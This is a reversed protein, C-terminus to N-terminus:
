SAPLPWRPTAVGGGSSGMMRFVIRRLLTAAQASKLHGTRQLGSSERPARMSHPDGHQMTRGRDPCCHGREAEAQEGDQAEDRGGVPRLRGGLRRGHRRWRVPQAPPDDGGVDHRQLLGIHQVAEAGEHGRAQEVRQAVVHHRPLAAAREAGARHHQPGVLPRTREDQAGILAIAQLHAELVQQRRAPLLLAAQRALIAAPQRRMGGGIGPRWRALAQGIRPRHAEIGRAGACSGEVDGPEIHQRDRRRLARHVRDAAARPHIGAQGSALTDGEVGARRLRHPGAEVEAAQRLGPLAGDRAPAGRLLAGVEGIGGGGRHAPLAIAALNAEAEEGRHIDLRGAGGPVAGLDGLRLQAGRRPRDGVAAVGIGRQVVPLLPRDAAAVHRDEGHEIAVVANDVAVQVGHHHQGFRRAALGVGAAVGHEAAGAAAGEALEGDDHMVLHVRRLAEGLQLVLVVREGLDAVAHADIVAHGAHTRQHHGRRGEAVGADGAVARFAAGLLEEEAGPGIAVRRQEQGILAVARGPRAVRVVRGVDVVGIEAVRDAEAVQMGTRLLRVDEMQVRVLPHHVLAVRIGDVEVGLGDRGAGGEAVADLEAAAAVAVERDAVADEVAVEVRMEGLAHPLQPPHVVAELVAAGAEEVRRPRGARAVVRAAAAQRIALHRRADDGRGHHRDGAGRERRQRRGLEAAIGEVDGALGAM